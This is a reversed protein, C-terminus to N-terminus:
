LKGEKQLTKAKDISANVIDLVAQSSITAGTIANVESSGLEGPSDAPPNRLSLDGSCDKNEWFRLFAERDTIKAGLGPTETQELIVLQNLSSFSGDTGIMLTIKDQFGTGSSYIAYGSIGGSGDRGQYVTYAEDQYVIDSRETGPVVRQIANQIKQQRNFEIRDRTLLDVGTLLGGSILGVSTLVLIMRASLSM